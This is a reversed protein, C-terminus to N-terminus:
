TLAGEGAARARFERADMVDSALEWVPEARPAQQKAASVLSSVGLVGRAVRTSVKELLKKEGCSPWPVKAEGAAFRGPAVCCPAKVVPFM